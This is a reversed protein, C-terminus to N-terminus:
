MLRYCSFPLLLMARTVLRTPRHLLGKCDTGYGCVGFPKWVIGCSVLLPDDAAALMLSALATAQVGSATAGSSGGAALGEDGGVTSNRRSPGSAAGAGTSAGGATTHQSGVGNKTHPSPLTPKPVGVRSSLPTIFSKTTRLPRAAADAGLLEPHGGWLSADLHAADGASLDADSGSSAGSDSYLASTSKGREWLGGAGATRGRPVPRASKSRPVRTVPAGTLASKAGLPVLDLDPTHDLDLAVAPIRHWSEGARDKIADPGLVDRVSPVASRARSALLQEVRASATSRQYEAPGESGDDPGTAVGDHTVARDRGPAASMIRARRSSFAGGGGGGGTGTGDATVDGTGKGSGAGDGTCSIARSSRSGKLASLGVAAATSAGGGGSGAEPERLRVSRATRATQPPQPHLLQPGNTEHGTGQVATGNVLCHAAASGDSGRVASGDGDGSGGNGGATEPVFRASCHTVAGRPHVGAVDAPQPHSQASGETDVGMDTRASGPARSMVVAADKGSNAKGAISRHSQAGLLM